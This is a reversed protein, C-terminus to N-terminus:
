EDEFSYSYSESTFNGGVRRSNKYNEQRKNIVKPTKRQKVILKLKDTINREEGM